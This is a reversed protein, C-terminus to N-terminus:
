ITTAGGDIVFTQGTTFAGAASALFVAAGAIEDPLGIRKLCSQATARKLIAPDDWLARAFDTKVLGPAITNVRVNDPGFELALNRALQMDAAKSINYVGIVDSGRLGGISSIIIVAGDQRARMEPAVLSILWHNSIINNQLIKAFQEDSIGSMPGFYPNSAANCVCIHIPGFAAHTEEVLRELDSKVGINAAVAIAAARGLDANIEEAAAECADLKRSSIVVNAGHEALRHAIAKGIGKSSGTIVATKGSLDFLASLRAM